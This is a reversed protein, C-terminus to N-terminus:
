VLPLRDVLYAQFYSYYNVWPVRITWGTVEVTPLLLTVIFTVGLPYTLWRQLWDVMAQTHVVTLSLVVASSAIVLVRTQDTTIATAVLPLLVAGILVLLARKKSECLIAWVVVFFLAAFGSYLTLPLQNLLIELSRRILSPLM